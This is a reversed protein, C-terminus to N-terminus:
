GMGVAVRPTLGSEGEMTGPCMFGGLQSFTVWSFFWLTPVQLLMIDNRNNRQNYRPHPIRSLVPICQQTWESATVSHIGM